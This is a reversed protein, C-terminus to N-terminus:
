IHPSAHMLVHERQQLLSVIEKKQDKNDIYISIGKSREAEEEAGNEGVLVDANIHYTYM